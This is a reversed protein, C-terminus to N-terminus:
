ASGNQALSESMAHNSRTPVSQLESRFAALKELNWERNWSALEQWRRGFHQEVFCAGAHTLAECGPDSM